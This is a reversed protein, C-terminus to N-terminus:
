RTVPWTSAPRFRCSAWSAMTVAIVWILRQPGSASMKPSRGSQFAARWATTSIISRYARPRCRQRSRGSAGRGPCGSPGAVHGAWRRASSSRDDRQSSGTSAPRTGTSSRRGPGRRGRARRSPSWDLALARTVRCRARRRPVPDREAPPAPRGRRRGRARRCPVPDREAPRAPRGGRRRRRARRGPVPDRGAPRAPRGAVHHDVWRDVERDAVVRAHGGDRSRRHAGRRHSGTRRVPRPRRTGPAKAQSQILAM